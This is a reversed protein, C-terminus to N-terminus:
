NFDEFTFGFLNKLIPKLSFLKERNIIKIKKDSKKPQYSILKVLKYPDKPYVLLDIIEEKTFLSFPDVCIEKVRAKNYLTLLYEKIQDWNDIIIKKRQLQIKNIFSYFSIPFELTEWIKDICMLQLQKDSLSINRKIKNGKDDFYIDLIERNVDWTEPLFSRINFLFEISSWFEVACTGNQGLGYFFYNNLADKLSEVLVTRIPPINSLVDIEKGNIISPGELNLRDLRHEGGFPKKCQGGRKM